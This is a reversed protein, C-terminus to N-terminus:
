RTTLHIHEFDSTSDEFNVDQFRGICVQMAFELATLAM